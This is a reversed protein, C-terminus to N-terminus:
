FARGLLALLVNSLMFTCNGRWLGFIGEKKFISSLAYYTGPYASNTMQQLVQARALPCFITSHGAVILGNMAYDTYKNTQEEM